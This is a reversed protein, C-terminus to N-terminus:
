ARLTSPRQVCRISCNDSGSAVAQLPMQASKANEPNHKTCQEQQWRNEKHANPSNRVRHNWELRAESTFEAGEHQEHQSSRKKNEAGAADEDSPSQHLM